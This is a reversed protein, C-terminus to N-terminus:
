PSGFADTLRFVGEPSAVATALLRVDRRRCVSRASEHWLRDAPIAETSGPRALALVLGGTPAHSALAVAFPDLLAARDEDDGPDRVRRGAAVAVPQLLRGEADCLLAYLAGAARDQESVCLDVVDVLLDPDTIPRTPWDAPLDHFSMDSLRSATRRHRDADDV